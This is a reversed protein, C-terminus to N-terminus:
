TGQWGLTLLFVSDTEARVDHRLGQGLVLLQGSPLEVSRDPLELRISGSLTHVSATVNAQHEPMHKGAKLVVLVVRLDSTRVLTRASQGEREYAEERRLEDAIGPIDFTVGDSPSEPKAM